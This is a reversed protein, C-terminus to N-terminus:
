FQKKYVSNEQVTEFSWVRENIEVISSSCYECYKQGLNTVPAGCNPCNVGVADGAGPMESNQVYVLGVEYVTQTKTDKSGFVVKGDKNETYAFYGVSLEFLVTVTAGTKIYRSIQVDHIVIEKFFVNVERSNLDSIISKLNDRLTKSCDYSLMTEDKSQLAGLYSRLVSKAKSKYLEYDFQPFDRTIQPLYISTMGHLSRPTESMEASQEKIADFLSETSFLSLSLQRIKRKIAIVAACVAAIIAAAVSLGIILSYNIKQVERCM